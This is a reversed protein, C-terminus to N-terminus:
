NCMSQFNETFSQSVEGRGQSFERPYHQRVGAESLALRVQLSNMDDRLKQNESRSEKIEYELRDITADARKLVEIPVTTTSSSASQGGKLAEILGLDVQSPKPKSKFSESIMTLVDTAQSNVSPKQRRSMPAPEMSIKPSPPPQLIRKRNNLPPVVTAIAPAVIPTSQLIEPEEKQRHMWSSVLEPESDSEEAVETDEDESISDVDIETGLSGAYLKADIDAKILKAERVDWPM